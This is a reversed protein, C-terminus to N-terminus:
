AGHALLVESVDGLARSAIVVEQKLELAVRQIVAKRRDPDRGLLRAEHLDEQAQASRSAQLAPGLGVIKQKISSNMRVSTLRHPEDNGLVPM